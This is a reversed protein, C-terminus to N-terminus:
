MPKDDEGRNRAYFDTLSTPGDYDSPPAEHVTYINMKRMPNFPNRTREVEIAGLAELEKVYARVSRTQAYGSARAMMAESPWVTTDGVALKREQNVHAALIQYLAKAQMSISAFTIWEPVMTFPPHEYRRGQRFVQETRDTVAHKGKAM